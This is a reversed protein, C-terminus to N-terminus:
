CVYEQCIGTILVAYMSVESEEVFIDCREGGEGYCVDNQELHPADPHPSCRKYAERREYKRTRIRVGRGCTVSCSSWSSWKTVTCIPDLPPGTVENGIHSSCYLVPSCLTRQM